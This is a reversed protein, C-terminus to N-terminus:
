SAGGTDGGISPAINGSLPLNIDGTDGSLPLNNNSLPMDGSLDGSLPTNIDGVNGSLPMN